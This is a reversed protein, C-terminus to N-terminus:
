RGATAAASEIWSGIQAYGNPTWNYISFFESLPHSGASPISGYVWKPLVRTFDSSYSWNESSTSREILRVLKSDGKVEVHVGLLDLPNPGATATQRNFDAITHIRVAVVGREDWIANSRM